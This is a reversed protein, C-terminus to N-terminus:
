NTFMFIIIFKPLVSSMSLQIQLIKLFLGHFRARLFKGKAFQLNYLNGSNSSNTLFSLFFFFIGSFGKEYLGKM